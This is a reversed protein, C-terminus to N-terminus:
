GRDGTGQVASRATSWPTACPQDVLLQGAYELYTGGYGVSSLPRGDRLTVAVLSADSVIEGVVDIQEKLRDSAAAVVEVGDAFALRFGHVGVVGALREVAVAPPTTGDFPLLLTCTTVARYPAHGYLRVQPAAERGGM